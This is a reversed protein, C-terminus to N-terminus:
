GVVSLAIQQSLQFATTTKNANKVMQITNYERALLGEGIDAANSNEM